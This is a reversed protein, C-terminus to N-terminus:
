NNNNTKGKPFYSEEDPKLELKYLSGADATHIRVPNGNSQEHGDCHIVERTIQNSKIQNLRIQNSNTDKKGEQMFQIREVLNSVRKGRREGDEGRMQTENWEHFGLVRKM